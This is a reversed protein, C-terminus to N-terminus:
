GPTKLRVARMTASRDESRQRAGLWGTAPAVAPRQGFRAGRGARGPLVNLSGSHRMISSLRINAGPPALQSEAAVAPGACETAIPGRQTGQACGAAPECCRARTTRKPVALTEGLPVASAWRDGGTGLADRQWGPVPASHSIDHHSIAMSGLAPLSCPGLRSDWARRISRGDPSGRRRSSRFLM